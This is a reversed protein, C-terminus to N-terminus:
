PAQPKKKRHLKIVAGRMQGGPARALTCVNNMSLGKDQPVAGKLRDQLLNTLEKRPIM